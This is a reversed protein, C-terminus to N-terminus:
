EPKELWRKIENIKDNSYRCRICNDNKVEFVSREFGSHAFFNRKINSNYHKDSTKSDYKENSGKCRKYIADYKTWENSIYSSCEEIEKIERM